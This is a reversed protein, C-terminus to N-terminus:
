DFQDDFIVLQRPFAAQHIETSSRLLVDNESDSRDRDGIEAVARHSAVDHLTTLTAGRVCGDLTLMGDYAAAEM